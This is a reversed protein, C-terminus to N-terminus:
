GTDTRLSGDHGNRRRRLFCSSGEEHPEGKVLITSSLSFRIRNTADARALRFTRVSNLTSSRGSTQLNNPM